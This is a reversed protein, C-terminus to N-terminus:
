IFLVKGRFSKRMARVNKPAKVRGRSAWPKKLLKVQAASPETNKKGSFLPICESGM